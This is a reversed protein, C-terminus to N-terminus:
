ESAASTDDTPPPRITFPTTPVDDANPIVVKDVSAAARRVVGGRDSRRFIFIMVAVVLVALVIAGGVVIDALMNAPRGERIEKVIRLGLFLPAPQLKEAQDTRTSRYSWVKFFLAECDITEYVDEGETLGPPLEIMLVTVPFNNRYQLPEQGDAATGLQIIKDGVPVYVNMEYYHDIGFRSQLDPEDVLIKAIRRVVGSLKMRSGIFPEPKAMLDAIEVKPISALPPLKKAERHAISLMQYFAERDEALIPKGNTKRLKDLLSVDFGWAALQLESPGIGRQPDAVTPFWSMREGCFFLDPQKGEEEPGVKLFMADLKTPEDIPQDIAWASPVSRVFVVAREKRDALEVEARYYSKYELLDVLEPLLEVVQVRKVKGDIGFILGRQSDPDTKIAEWAAEGQRWRALNDLGLRPFRYLIRVLVDEESPDFPVDSHFNALQSAGIDYREFVEVPSAPARVVPAVPRTRQQWPLAGPDNEESPTPALPATPPPTSPAEAPTASGTITPGEDSAEGAPEEAIAIAVPLAFLVGLASIALWHRLIELPRVHRSSRLPM